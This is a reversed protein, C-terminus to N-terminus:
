QTYDKTTPHINHFDNVCLFGLLELGFGYNHLTMQTAATSYRVRNPKLEQTPVPATSCWFGIPKARTTTHVFHIYTFVISTEGGLGLGYKHQTIPTPAASCELWM